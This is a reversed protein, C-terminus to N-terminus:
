RPFIGGSVREIGALDMWSQVEAFGASVLMARVAQAQDYGHEVLLWGGVDLWAPASSALLRFVSLGDGGDTLAGQPEFRLDGEALHQDDKAIYPPNSVMVDFRMPAPLADFWSGSFFAIDRGKPAHRGANERAVALAPQSIDTATVMVDPRNAAVAVAIAGSGTGLDLLRGNEPLFRLALEVLLETEPRPILVDPTVRFPLGYFERGGIIHAVPEGRLRRTLVLSVADAQAASLVRESQTVLQVHSLGLVYELLIRLDVPPLCPPSFLAGLRTGERIAILPADQSASKPLDAGM